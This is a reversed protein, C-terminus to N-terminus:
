VPGGAALSERWKHSVLRFIDSETIIGVLQGTEDLVPLSGIKHELMLEAVRGITARPSVTIPHPTMVRSVKLRSVLYSLEYINVSIADSPAASQLDDQTVIGVLRGANMVPLRRIRRDSMLRHADALTADPGITVVERTMWDKVLERHM